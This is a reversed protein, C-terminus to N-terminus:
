SRMVRAQRVPVTTTVVISTRAQPTAATSWMASVKNQHWTLVVIKKTHNTLPSVTLASIQALVLNGIQIQVHEELMSNLGLLQELRVYDM